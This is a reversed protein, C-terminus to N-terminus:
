RGEPDPVLVQDPGRAGDGGEVWGALAVPVGMAEGVGPEAALASPPAPREGAYALLGAAAIVLAAAAALAPRVWRALPAAPGAAFRRRALEPAAADRTRRLLAEWREPDRRPDLGNLDRFDHIM